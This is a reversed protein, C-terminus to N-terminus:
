RLLQRRVRNGCFGVACLALLVGTSPEPITTFTHVSEDYFYDFSEGTVPHTGRVSLKFHNNPLDLGTIFPGSGVPLNPIRWNLDIPEGQEDLTLSFSDLDIVQANAGPIGTLKFDCVEHIGVRTQGPDLQDIRFEATIPEPLEDLGPFLPGTQEPSQYEVRLIRDAPGDDNCLWIDDVDVFPIPHVQAPDGLRLSQVGLTYLGKVPAVFRDTVKTFRQGPAVTHVPFDVFGDPSSSSFSFGAPQITIPDPNPDQSHPPIEYSGGPAGIWASFEYGEGAQFFKRSKARISNGRLSAYQRGHAADHTASVFTQLTKPPNFATDLYEHLGPLFFPEVIAVGPSWNNTGLTFKEFSGEPVDTEEFSGDSILQAHIQTTLFPLHLLALVFLLRQMLRRQM